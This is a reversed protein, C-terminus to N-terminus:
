LHGIDKSDREPKEWWVQDSPTLQPDEVTTTEGALPLRVQPEEFDGQLFAQVDEMTSLTILFPGKDQARVLSLDLWILLTHELGLHNLYGLLM